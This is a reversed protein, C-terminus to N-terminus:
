LDDYNHQKNTYFRQCHIHAFWKGGSELWLSLAFHAIFVHCALLPLYLCSATEM